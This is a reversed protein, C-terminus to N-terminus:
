VIEKQMVRKRWRKKELSSVVLTEQMPFQYFFVSDYSDIARDIDRKLRMLNNEGLSATEYLNKSKAELGYLKLINEVEKQHDDSVVDCVVAVFM